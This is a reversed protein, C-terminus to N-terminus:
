GDSALVGEPLLADDRKCLLFGLSLLERPQGPPTLWKVLRGSKGEWGKRGAHHSGGGGGWGWLWQRCGQGGVGGGVVERDVRARVGEARRAAGAAVWADGIGGPDVGAQM